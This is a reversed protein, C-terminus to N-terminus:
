LDRSSQSFRVQGQLDWLAERPQQNWRKRSGKRTTRPLSSTAAEDLRRRVQLNRKEPAQHHSRLRHPLASSPPKM